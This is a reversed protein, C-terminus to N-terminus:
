AAFLCLRLSFLDGRITSYMLTKVCNWNREIFMEARLTVSQNHTISPVTGFFSGERKDIAVEGHLRM